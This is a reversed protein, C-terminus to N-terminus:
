TTPYTSVDVAARHWCDPGHCCMDLHTMGYQLMNGLTM